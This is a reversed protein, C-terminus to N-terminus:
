HGRWGAAAGKGEGQGIYASASGVEGKEEIGAGQM